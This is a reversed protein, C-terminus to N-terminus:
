GAFSVMVILTVLALGGLGAGVLGWMRGRDRRAALGLTISAPIGLLLVWFTGIRIWSPPDAPSFSIAAVAAASLLTVVGCILGARGPPRMPGVRGARAKGAQAM